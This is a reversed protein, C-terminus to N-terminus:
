SSSDSDVSLNKEMTKRPYRPSSRKFGYLMEKKARYERSGFNTSSYSRVDRATYESVSTLEKDYLKNKSNVDASTDTGHSTKESSSEQKAKRAAKKVEDVVTKIREKETDVLHIEFRYHKNRRYFRLLGDFFSVAYLIPDGRGKGTGILPLVLTHCRKEKLTEFIKYFALQIKAGGETERPMLVHAVWKFNMIDGSGCVIVEEIQTHRRFAKRRADRYTRGGMEEIAILLSGKSKGSPSNGCAVIDVGKISLISGSYIYLKKDEGFCCTYKRESLGPPVEAKSFPYSLETEERQHVHDKTTDDEGLILNREQDLDLHAITGLNEMSYISSSSHGRKAFQFVETNEYLGQEVDLDIVSRETAISDERDKQQHVVSNFHVTDLLSRNPYYQQGEVTKDISHVKAFTHEDASDSSNPSRYEDQGKMLHHDDDSREDNIELTKGDHRDDQCIDAEKREEQIKEMCINGDNDKKIKFVKDDASLIDEVIHEKDANYFVELQIIKGNAKLVLNKRVKDHRTKGKRWSAMNSFM